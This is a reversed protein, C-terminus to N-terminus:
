ATRQRISSSDPRGTAPASGVAAGPALAEAAPQSRAPIEAPRAAPRRPTPALESATRPSNCLGSRYRPVFRPAESAPSPASEADVSASEAVDVTDRSVPIDRPVIRQAKLEEMKREM